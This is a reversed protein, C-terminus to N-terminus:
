DLMRVAARTPRSAPRSTPASTPSARDPGKRLPEGVSAVMFDTVGFPVRGGAQTFGEEEAEAETRNRPRNRGSAPTSCTEEGCEEDECNTAVFKEIGLAQAAAPVAVAVLGCVLLAVLSVRVSSRM